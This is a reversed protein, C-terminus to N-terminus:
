PAAACAGDVCAFKQPIPPCRCISGSTCSLAVWPQSLADLDAQALTQNVAYWCGGLGVGCHGWLIQCEGDAQCSRADQVRQEYTALIRLCPDPCADGVCADSVDSADAGPADAADAPADVPADVPADAAVDAVADVALDGDADAAGDPGADQCAPDPFVEMWRWAGGECRLLNCFQCRDTCGGGCLRGEPACPTGDAAMFDTPCPDPVDPLDTPPADPVDGATVDPAADPLADVIGEAPLDAADTPVDASVKVADRRLDDGPGAGGDDPCGALALVLGATLVTATRGM